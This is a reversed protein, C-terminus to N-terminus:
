ITIPEEVPDIMKKLTSVFSSSKLEVKFWSEGLM